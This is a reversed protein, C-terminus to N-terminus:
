HYENSQLLPPNDNSDIISILVTTSSSLSPLGRDSAILLLKHNRNIEYDLIGNIALKGTVVFPPQSLIGVSEVVFMNQLNGGAISFDIYGNECTWDLDTATFTLITEGISTNERVCIQYVDESFIPAHNNTDHVQLEIIVTSTLVPFGNDQAAVLIPIVTNKDKIEVPTDTHISGTTPNIVFGKHPSIIRYSVPGYMESDRDTATVSIIFTNSETLEPVTVKLP